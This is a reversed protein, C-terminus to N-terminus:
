RPDEGATSATVSAVIADLDTDSPEVFLLGSPTVVVPTAVYGAGTVLAKAGADKDLQVYRHPLGAAELHRLARTTDECADLGYVTVTDPRPLGNLDTM